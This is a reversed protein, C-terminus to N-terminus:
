NQRDGPRRQPRVTNEQPTAVDVVPEAAAPADGQAPAPAAAPAVNGSGGPAPLEAGGSEPASEPPTEPEAEPAVRIAPAPAAEQGAAAAAAEAAAGPRRQPRPMGAPPAVPETVPAAEPAPTGAPPGVPPEAPTDAPDAPAAEPAPAPAPEPAEAPAPEAAPEEAPTEVPAGAPSPAAPVPVAAGDEASPPEAAPEGAPDDDDHLDMPEDTGDGTVEAPGAPTDDAPTDAAPAPEDDGMEQRPPELELVAPFDPDDEPEILKFAIRRNAERGEETANDAVPETAGYGKATLNSVPVRMGSLAELVAEARDQSLALNTEARGQSDTHGGIEMAVEACERLVDALDRMARHAEPVIESSGPAFTIEGRSLVTNAREVCDNPTPLALSADLREEYAVDVEFDAGQGLRESLIRAIIERTEQSGTAGRVDMRDPQVLVAGNHLEALAALAALVRVSWGEPLGEPDLRTATFVRDAGFRARAYADVATRMPADSLRGRLEVRGDEALVATFQAPGPGATAEPPPTLTAKLSFVRPLRTTLEGVVRDFRDQPVGAAGILTMDADTMTLTGQGMEALAAIGAAAADAWTPSPVGLGITCSGRGAMGAATGARLIRDRARESDASCADFRAGEEDIVFRLVFPTIVPRPASISTEVVLGEPTARTLDAEFKHKQALSDAIATVTVKGADISIKSRPLLRLAEIGYTVARTWGEPEPFSATQLMDTVDGESVLAHIAALAPRSDWSTPVLGILSIGDDNRLLEVSFRPATLAKVPAVEMGDRVRGADVVRGAISIARFRLAETPATGTLVVTLGDAEVAAWDLGAGDLLRAVARESRGEIWHTAMTASLVALAAALAFAAIVYFISTPRM